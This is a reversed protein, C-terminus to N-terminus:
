SGCLRADKHIELAPHGARRKELDLSRGYFLGIDIATALELDMHLNGVVISLLQWDSAV